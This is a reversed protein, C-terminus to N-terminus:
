RHKTHNKFRNKQPMGTGIANPTFIELIKEPIKIEHGNLTDDEQCIMTIEYNTM